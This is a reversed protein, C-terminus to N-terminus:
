SLKLALFLKHLIYNEAGEPRGFLLWFSVVSLTYVFMGIVIKIFLIFFIDYHVVTDIFSVTYYMIIVSVLPRYVSQIMNIMKLDPLSSKILWLVLLFGSLISAVRLTAIDYPNSTDWFIFLLFFVMVQIWTTMAAQRFYGLTLMVYTGSTTIAHIVNALVLIKLFPVVFIWKEGLFVYVVEQAVLMLGVSAPLAVMVQVGQALLFIRKLENLDHKVASFAPFLVRSIPALLEESPMNSIEDALSYGGMVSTDAGRGVLIKHLNLNCYRGVSNILMWQSVQFIEKVKSFSIRPRMPHMVYSLLAGFSSGALTGIILAWYSRLCWAAVMTVIFGFFRKSIRFRFDEVFLMEKQFNIIGINEFGNIILHLSTVQVVLVVRTDNFYQAAFPASVSVIICSLITQLLRLTWATDYHEQKADHNQILAVNVGLNLFVDALLIALMAMAVVGFDDPTL